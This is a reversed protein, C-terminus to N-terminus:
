QGGHWDRDEFIDLGYPADYKLKPHPVPPRPVGERRAITDHRYDNWVGDHMGVQLRIHTPPVKVIVTRVEGSGTPAFPDFENLSVNWRGDEGVVGYSQTAILGVRGEHHLIGTPGGADILNLDNINVVQGAFLFREMVEFVKAAKDEEPTSEMEAMIAKADKPEFPGLRKEICDNIFTCVAKYNAERVEPKALAKAVTAKGM